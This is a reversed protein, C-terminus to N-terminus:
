LDQLQAQDIYGLAMLAEGLRVIPMRAQRAIGEELEQATTAPRESLIEAVQNARTHPPTAPVPEAPTSTAQMVPAPAPSATDAPSTADTSAGQTMLAEAAAGFDLRAISGRPIFVRRVSAQEDIPEFLFVGAPLEVTGLTLGSSNQGSKHTVHYAEPRFKKVQGGKSPLPSIPTLLVLRQFQDFRIAIPKRAQPAQLQVSGKALDFEIVKVRTAGGTPGVLECPEQDDVGTRDPYGEQPPAPWQSPRGFSRAEADRVQPVASTPPESLDSM